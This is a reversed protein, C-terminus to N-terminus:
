NITNKAKVNLLCLPVPYYQGCDAIIEFDLCFPESETNCTM